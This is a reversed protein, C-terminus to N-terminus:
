RVREIERVRYRPYDDGGEKGFPQIASVLSGAVRVLDGDGFQALRPDAELRVKTEWPAATTSSQYCLYYQGHHHKELTGQLWRLQPDHSYADDSGSAPLNSSRVALHASVPQKPAAVTQGAVERSAHFPEPWRAVLISVPFSPPAPEVRALLYRPAPVSSGELPSRSALLPDRPRDGSPLRCGAALLCALALNLPLVRGPM